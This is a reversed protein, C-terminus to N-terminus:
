GTKTAFQEVGPPPPSSQKKRALRHCRYSYRIHKCCQICVTKSAPKWMSLCNSPYKDMKSLRGHWEQIQRGLEDKQMERRREGVSLFSRSTIRLEIIKFTWCELRKWSNLCYKIIQPHTNLHTRPPRSPDSLSIDAPRRDETM